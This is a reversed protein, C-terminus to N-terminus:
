TAAELALAPQSQRRAAAAHETRAEAIAVYEAEREILVWHMGCDIAAVGTTGSGGFPDLVVGGRPCALTCLFAFLTTPKTTPHYNRSMVPQVPTVGDGALRLTERAGPVNGELGGAAKEELGECGANKEARSPKPVRLVGASLAADLWEDSLGHERAWADLDAYKSDDGLARATVLLNSPYRGSPDTNFRPGDDPALAAPATNMLGGDGGYRIRVERHDKNATTQYDAGGSFPVRCGDVNVAGTGWRKVNNRAPGPEAPKTVWLIQESAPKLPVSSSHWGDWEIADPTSPSTITKPEYEHVDPHLGYRAGTITADSDRGKGDPAVYEGVKARVGPADGFRAQLASLLRTGHTETAHTESEYPRIQDGTFHAMGRQRGVRSEPVTASYAGNVAASAAKRVDARTVEDSYGARLAWVRRKCEPCEVKRAAFGKHKHEFPCEPLMTLPQAKVWKLFAAKDFDKGVDTSKPFGSWYVWSLAAHQIDFGVERLDTLLGLITDQRSGACVFCSAGPKLVRLVEAWIARAPLAADWAKGMFGGKADPGNSLAYPPDTACLDVSCDPLGRLVELCDGQTVRDLWKSLDATM